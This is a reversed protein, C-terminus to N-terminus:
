RVESTVVNVRISVTNCGWSENGTSATTTLLDDDGDDSYEKLGVLAFITFWLLSPRVLLYVLPHNTMWDHVDDISDCRHFKNIFTPWIDLDGLATLRSGLWTNGLRDLAIRTCLKWQVCGLEAM